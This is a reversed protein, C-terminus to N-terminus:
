GVRGVGDMGYMKDMSGLRGERIRAGEGGLGGEMM